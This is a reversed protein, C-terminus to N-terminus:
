IVQPYIVSTHHSVSYSGKVDMNKVYNKEEVEQNNITINKNSMSCLFLM